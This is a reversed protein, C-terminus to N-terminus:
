TGPQITPSQLSAVDAPRYCSGPMRTITFSDRRSIRIRDHRWGNHLINAPLVIVGMCKEMEQQYTKHVFKASQIVSEPLDFVPKPYLDEDQLKWYKTKDLEDLHIYCTDIIEMIRYIELAPMRPLNFIQAMTYPGYKEEAPMTCNLIYLTGDVYWNTYSLSWGGSEESKDLSDYPEQGYVYVQDVKVYPVKPDMAQCLVHDLTAHVPAPIGDMVCSNLSPKASYMIYHLVCLPQSEM